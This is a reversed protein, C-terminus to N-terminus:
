KLVEQLRAKGRHYHVRATGSSVGIVAAAEDLTLGHFFVLDLVERQRAPLRSLAGRVKAGDPDQPEVSARPESFLAALGLTAVWRRRRRDAATNRVVAFFWSRFPAGSKYVARGDLVKLYATQLVEEAEDRNWKCLSLAWAYSQRHHSELERQLEAREMPGESSTGDVWSPKPAIADM